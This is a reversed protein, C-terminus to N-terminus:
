RNASIQNEKENWQNFGDLLPNSSEGKFSEGEEPPENMLDQNFDFEDVASNSDDGGMMAQQQEASKAQVYQPNLIVDGDELEDPLNYKRRIEQFGMFNGVKKIDLEVDKEESEVDVGVFAFEYEKDLPNIIYKNIKAQIFKLIPRLGKDKSFKLRAENNGEFMPSASSSGSMPFGIESPDMKYIACGLKILYEQWKAFEMDQNSKQLDIWEMKESELVPVKWANQVGAVMSQWQQRFEQLRPGSVGSGVKLIGKPASGQSFFKGNYTDSYLMWTVVNILDELESTGYGYNRIDTTQNRVAFCLEWPYYENAPEGNILQVYSPYYGNVKEREKGQYMNDDFSDALRFTAGDTALYEVPSGKRNRVIEYTMQDMVLADETTKRIFTDFTDGHWSNSETGCNLVFDTLYEIKKEIEPTIEEETESFWKKKKRIVFGTSYRDRQPQTFDAVQEVRTGVIARIIPSKAMRRLTGYSLSFAKDKYGLQSRFDDPHITVSKFDNEQKNQIDAWHTTAKILEEPDNSSLGKEMLIMEEADLIKKENKIADLSRGRDAKASNRKRRAKSM